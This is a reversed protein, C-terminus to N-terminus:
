YNGTLYSNDNANYTHKISHTWEVNAEGKAKVSVSKVKVEKTLRFSVTGVDADGESYSSDGLSTVQVPHVM